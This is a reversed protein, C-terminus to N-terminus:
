KGYLHKGVKRIREMQEPALPGSNLVSLNQQMQEMNGAGMMCVDVSPNSLVFRYCEAATLPPQGPPMKNPKLLKQWATATFSVIGPRDQGGMHPFTETEAGRHAANYRIHLVDFVGEKALEPFLARNHGTLGIFRVLNKEKLQRAGDIVKQPPRKSYYGLLLVDAYDLRADKLGKVFFRETLWGNHAYTLMALVLDNRRGKASINRIAERMAGSRGRVFTGWTFYNCGREFAAEYAAAPAGFSSSIGLRGVKLGTRGLTTQESFTM